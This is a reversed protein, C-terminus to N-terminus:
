LTEPVGAHSLFWLAAVSATVVGEFVFGTVLFLSGVLLGLVAVPVRWAVFTMGHLDAGPPAAKLCKGSWIAQLGSRSSLLDASRFCRGRGAQFCTPFATCTKRPQATM